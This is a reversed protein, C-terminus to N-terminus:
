KSAATVKASEEAARSAFTRSTAWAECATEAYVIRRAGLRTFAPGDGTVRWYELTRQPIRYRESVERETLYM